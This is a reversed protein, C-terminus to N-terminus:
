MSYQEKIKHNEVFDFGDDYERIPGHEDKAVFRFAFNGSCLSCRGLTFSTLISGDGKRHECNCHLGICDNGYVVGTYKEGSSKNFVEIVDGPLIFSLAEINLEFRGVEDSITECVSLGDQAYTENTVSDKDQVSWNENKNSVTCNYQTSFGKKFNSM